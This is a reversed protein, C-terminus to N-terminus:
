QMKNKYKDVYKIMMNALVHKENQDSIEWLEKLFRNEPVDPNINQALYDGLQEAGRSMLDNPMGMGKAEDMAKGLTDVWQDFRTIDM